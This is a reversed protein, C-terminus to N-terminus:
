VDKKLWEKDKELERVSREPVLDRGALRNKSTVVIAGGMAIYVVGTIVFGLAYKVPQSLGTEEFLASVLFAVAVNLLAFGVVAIMGGVGMAAGGRAYASIDEKIEIKLLGLKADLLTTLDDGLRGFLDPLSEGDSKEGATTKREKSDGM